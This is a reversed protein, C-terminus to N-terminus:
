KTIGSQKCEIIKSIMRIGENLLRSTYQYSFHLEAAVKKLKKGNCYVEMLIKSRVGAVICIDHLIEVQKVRCERLEQEIECSREQDVSIMQETELQEIKWGLERYNELYKRAKINKM